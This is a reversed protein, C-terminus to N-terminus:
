EEKEMVIGFFKTMLPIYTGIFVLMAAMVAAKRNEKSWRRGILIGILVGMSFLCFKLLAIDKWDSKQLYKDAYGFLNKM